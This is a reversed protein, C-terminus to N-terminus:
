LRFDTSNPKKSLMVHSSYASHHEQLVGLSLLTKLGRDIVPKEAPSVTFPRIDFPQTDTLEFDITLNTNGVECHLSFANSYKLLLQKM